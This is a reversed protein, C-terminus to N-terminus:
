TYCRNQLYVKNKTKQKKFNVNTVIVIKIIRNTHNVLLFQNSERVYVM